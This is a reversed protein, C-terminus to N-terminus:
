KGLIFDILRRKFPPANKIPAHEIESSNFYLATLCGDLLVWTRGKNHEIRIIYGVAGRKFTADDRIRVRDGEDFEWEAYRGM